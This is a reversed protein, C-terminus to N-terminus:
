VGGGGRCVEETGCDCEEGEEVYRRLAVCEEGGRCVEETGCDCEEGEEVYRRLAVTM